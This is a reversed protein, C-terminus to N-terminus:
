MYQKAARAGTPKNGAYPHPWKEQHQNRGAGARKKEELVDLMKNVKRSQVMNRKAVRKNAELDSPMEPRPEVFFLTPEYVCKEAAM